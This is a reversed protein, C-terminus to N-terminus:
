HWSRPRHRPHRRPRPRTDSIAANEATVVGASGADRGGPGRSGARCGCGPEIQRPPRPSRPRRSRPSQIWRGSGAPTPCASRATALPRRLGQTAAIAARTMSSSAPASIGGFFISDAAAATNAAANSSTVKAAVQGHRGCGRRWRRGPRARRAPVANQTMTQRRRARQRRRRAAGARRAPPQHGRRNDRDAAADRREASLRSKRCATSRGRIHSGDHATRPLAERTM